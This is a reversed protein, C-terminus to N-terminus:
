QSGPIEEQKDDQEESVERIEGCLTCLMMVCEETTITQSGDKITATRYIPEFAHNGCSTEQQTPLFTDNTRAQWECRSNSRCLVFDTASAM